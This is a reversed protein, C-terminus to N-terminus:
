SVVSCIAVIGCCILTGMGMGCIGCGILVLVKGLLENMKEEELKRIIM